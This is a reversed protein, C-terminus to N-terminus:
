TTEMSYKRRTHYASLPRKSKRVGPGTGYPSLLLIRILLEPLIKMRRILNMRQVYILQLIRVTINMCMYTNMRKVSCTSLDVTSLQSNVSNFLIERRNVPRCCNDTSPISCYRDVSSMDVTSLLIYLPQSRITFEASSFFVKVHCYHDAPRRDASVCDTM